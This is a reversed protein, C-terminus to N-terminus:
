ATQCIPAGCSSPGTARLFAAQVQFLDPAHLTRSGCRIRPPDEKPAAKCAAIEVSGARRPCAGFGLATPCGRSLGTRDERLVAWTGAGPCADEEGDAGGSAEERGTGDMPGREEGGASREPGLRRRRARRGGPRRRRPAATQVGAGVPPLEAGGPIGARGTERSRKVCSRGFGVEGRRIRAGGAPCSARM